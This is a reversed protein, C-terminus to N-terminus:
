VAGDSGPVPIRVRDARADRLGERAAGDGMSTVNFDVRQASTARMQETAARGARAWVGFVRAAAGAGAVRAARGAAPAWCSSPMAATTFLSM